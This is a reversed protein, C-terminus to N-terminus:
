ILSKLSEPGVINFQLPRSAILYHTFSYGFLKLLWFRQSAIHFPQNFSNGVWTSLSCNGPRLSLQVVKEPFSRYLSLSDSCAM